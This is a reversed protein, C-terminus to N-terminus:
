LDKKFCHLHACDQGDSNTFGFDLVYVSHLMIGFPTLDYYGQDDKKGTIVLNLPILSKESNFFNRLM